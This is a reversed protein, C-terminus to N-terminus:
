GNKVEGDERSYMIHEKEDSDVFIIEKFPEINIENKLSDEGKFLEKIDLLPLNTKIVM